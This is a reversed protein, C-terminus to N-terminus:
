GAFAERVEDLVHGNTSIAEAFRGSKGAFNTFTGGAERVILEIASIDYPAVIPDIMADARGTAVLCHGYADGWTRTTMARAAIRAMGEWRGYQLLSKHGGCAVTSGELSPTVSVRAVRGDWFAGCGREAYVMENLAPFASVGVLVQGDVEFSLLTAYLPVGAIFSKTGDIPDIVWRRDTPGTEGEEEGYIGHDPYAAAIAERIIREATRDAVTVPSRDAKLERGVGTQFYPLTARGARFATDVAFALLPSMSYKM